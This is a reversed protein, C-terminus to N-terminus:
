KTTSPAKKKKKHKKAAPKPADAAPTAAAPTDAAMPVAAKPSDAAMAGAALGLTLFASSILIGFKNMSDGVTTNVLAEFFVGSRRSEDSIFIM